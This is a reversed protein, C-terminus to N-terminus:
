YKLFVGTLMRGSKIGQRRASFLFDKSSFTCLDSIEIMEDSIGSQKLLYKNALRLDIHYKNTRPNKKCLESMPFGADSFEKIVEEGVEFHDQSICPGIGAIMHYPDCGYTYQMKRITKQAIKLVTGRWGAHIAAIVNKQPDFIIIPVCDATSVAVCIEPQNTIIADIGYLLQSKDTDSKHLFEQGIIFIRDEHTQYPTFLHSQFINLHETLKKRNQLVNEKIDGSYPSLNFSKYNGESFGGQSTTSFHCLNDFQKLLDFELINNHNKSIKM